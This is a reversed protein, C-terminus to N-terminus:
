QPLNFRKFGTRRALLPFFGLLLVADVQALNPGRLKNEPATTGTWYFIRMVSTAAMHLLFLLLPCIYFYKPEAARKFSIIIFSDTSKRHPCQTNERPASTSILVGLYILVKLRRGRLVPQGCRSSELHASAHPGGSRPAFARGSLYNNGKMAPTRIHATFRFTPAPSTNRLKLLGREQPYWLRAARTARTVGEWRDTFTFPVAAPTSTVRRGPTLPRTAGIPADESPLLSEHPEATESHEYVAPIM